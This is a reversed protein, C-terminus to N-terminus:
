VPPPNREGYITRQHWYPYAPTRDSVRDLRTVQEASLTFDAAALSDRLQRENRAGVIMSSVTPRRLVWNLAVQAVTRETEAAVRQLEDIVDYFQERPMGPRTGLTGVRSEPPPPHDRTMKGSL